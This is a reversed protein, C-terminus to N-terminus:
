NAWSIVTDCSAVGAQCSSIPVQVNLYWRGPTLKGGSLRNDAGMTITGGGANDTAGKLSMWYANDTYDCKSKSVTVNKGARTPGFDSFGIEAMYRGVTSDAATVDIAAVFSEGVPIFAIYSTYIKHHFESANFTLRVPTGPCYDTVVGAPPPTVVASTCSNFHFSPNSLVGNTCTVQQSTCPATASSFGTATAGHALTTSGFSCIATAPPPTVTCRCTWDASGDTVNQKQGDNANTCAMSRLVPRQNMPRPPAFDDAWAWSCSGGSGPSTSCSDYHFIPNSLNGNNCTVSQSNCPATASSYGTATVGHALTTSGFNCRATGIVPPIVVLPISSVATACFLVGEDAYGQSVLQAKLAPDTVLRYKYSGSHSLRYVPYTVSPSTPCSAAPNIKIAYGEIGEDQFKSDTLYSTRDNIEATYLHFGGKNFLRYVPSLGADSAAKVTITNGTIDFLNAYTTELLSQDNVRSTYFFRNSAKHRYEKLVVNGNTIIQSGSVSKPAYSLGESFNSGSLGLNKLGLKVPSCNQFLTTTIIFSFTTLLLLKFNKKNKLM